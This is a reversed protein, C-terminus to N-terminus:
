KLFFSNIMRKLLGLYSIKEIAEVAVINVSGITEDGIKYDINGIVEGAEVPASIYEPLNVAPEVGKVAESKDLVIDFKEYMLRCSNSVGGLVKIPDIEGSEMCLYKYNAFGYDLLKKAIENRIDRNPAGMIVAILQMGDRKAAASICFGAKSTSGTKLGNAGNYFRILRNTNTLGFAGNRISDMWITTYNLIFEHKMLERSMLSIDRATTKHDVTSDDLGTPNEFVTNSMGLESARANMREVFGEVSGAVQEALATAADNASAIIVSKLLDEVSMQEGAKLYVQSGGMHSANDSIQVIDTLKLTGKGIEEAVLLITMIKTVSAPALRMDAEYEYLVKGTEAEILIVSKAEGALAATDTPIVPLVEEAASPILGYGVSFILAMFFATLKLTIKKM